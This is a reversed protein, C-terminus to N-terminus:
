VDVYMLLSTLCLRLCEDHLLFYMIRVASLPSSCPLRSIKYVKNHCDTARTAGTTLARQGSDKQSVMQITWMTSSHAPSIPKTWSSRWGHCEPWFQGWMPRERSTMNWGSSTRRWPRPPNFLLILLVYCLFVSLSNHWHSPKFAFVSLLVTYQVSACM